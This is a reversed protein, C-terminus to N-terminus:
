NMGSQRSSHLHGIFRDISRDLIDFVEEFDTLDGWYPDPVPSGTELSDFARMLVLKESIEPFEALTDQRNNEDMTVWLDFDDPHYSSINQARSVSEIGKSALVQLTRHDPCEGIHYNGTGASFSQWGKDVNQKVKHNFIAEAM